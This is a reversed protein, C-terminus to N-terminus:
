INHGPKVCLYKNKFTVLITKIFTITLVSVQTSRSVKMPKNSNLRETTDSETIGHVMGPKGTWWWWGSSAWCVWACQTVSVMCGDQERDDEEGGEKLRERCWPRKWDTPEQCWNLETVRRTRSKTVVHVAAHLRGQGDGVWKEDPPQLIPVKAEADTRGIFIWSQNGKPHVQKFEKCDLPHLSDEGVGCNLHM